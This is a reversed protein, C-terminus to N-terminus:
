DSLYAIHETLQWRGMVGSLAHHYARLYSVHKALQCPRIVVTLPHRHIEWDHFMSRWNDDNWLLTPSHYHTGWTQLMSWWNEDDWSLPCLMTIWGFYICYARDTTMAWHCRDSCPSVGELILYAGDTTMTLAQNYMGLTHFKIDTKM